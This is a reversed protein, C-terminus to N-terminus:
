VEPAPGCEEYLGLGESVRQVEQLLERRRSDRHKKYEMLDGMRIRRHSGVMHYPLHGQELLRILFPRSVQLIDAAQQTTLEHDYNLLAVSSGMAMTRVVKVLMQFVSPPLELKRGVSDALYYRVETGEGAGFLATNLDQIQPFEEPRAAVPDNVIEAAPM